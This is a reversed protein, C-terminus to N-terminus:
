LIYRDRIPPVEIEEHPLHCLSVVGENTDGEMLVVTLTNASFLLSPYVMLKDKLSTNVEIFLPLISFKLVLASLLLDPTLNISIKLPDTLTGM